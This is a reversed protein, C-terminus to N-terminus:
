LWFLLAYCRRFHAISVTNSVASLKQLDTLLSLDALNFYKASFICEINPFMGKHSYM